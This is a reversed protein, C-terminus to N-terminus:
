FPTWIRRNTNLLWESGAITVWSLVITAATIGVSGVSIGQKIGYEPIGSTWAGMVYVSLVAPISLCAGYAVARKSASKGATNTPPATNATPGAGPKWVHESAEHGRTNARWNVGSSTGSHSGTAQEQQETRNRQYANETEQSSGHQRDGIYQEHGLRDYREREKPDSLVDYAEKVQIFQQQANPDDNHDPHKEKVVQKWAQKIRSQDADASVGLRDYYTDTM